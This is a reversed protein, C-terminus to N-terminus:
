FRIRDGNQFMTGLSALAEIFRGELMLVLSKGYYANCFAPSLALARDFHKLAEGPKKQEFLVGGLSNQVTADEPAIEAARELFRLATAPASKVRAYHNGLITLAQHDRPDARLVDLLTDVAESDKGLEVLVMALERRSEQLHPDLELVRRYIDVAKVYEGRRARIAAKQTLRRAEVENVAAVPDPTVTVMDGDVTVEAGKAVEGLVERLKAILEEGELATLAGAGPVSKKLDTISFSFQVPRSGLITPNIM